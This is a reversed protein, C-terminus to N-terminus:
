SSFPLRGRWYGPERSTHMVAYIIVLDETPRYHYYLVFPFRRLVYRRLGPPEVVRWMGPAARVVALASEVADVFRSAVETGGIELAYFRIADHYEIRAGPDFQSSASM